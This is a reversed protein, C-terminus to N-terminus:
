SGAPEEPSFATLDLPLGPPADEVIQHQFEEATYASAPKPPKKGGGGGGDPPKVTGGGGGDPPAFPDPQNKGLEKELAKNRAVADPRQAADAPADAIFKAYYFQALDKQGLQDFTFAVNYLLLPNRSLRYSEKFKEVALDFKKEDFLKKGELFAAKAQELQAPTPPAPEAPKTDGPAPTPPPTPAPQAIATGGALLLGLTAISIFRGILTV